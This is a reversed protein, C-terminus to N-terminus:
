LLIVLTGYHFGAFVTGTKYRALDSGTPALLHPGKEMRKTFTDKGMGLGLACMEAVTFCGNVMNQGWKNMINTWEPFGEPVHHSMTKKEHEALEGIRWFYRWKADYEPPQPTTAENGKKYNKIVEVHEKAKEKYEPTAGVQYHTEPFIDKPKNQYYLKGRSDFFKEMQNIFVDNDKQNVRPDKIILCGFEHLADAVKTCDSHSSDKQKLYAEVDIVPVTKSFLRRIQRVLMALLIFVPLVSCGGTVRSGFSISPGYHASSLIM